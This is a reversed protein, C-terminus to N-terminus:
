QVEKIIDWGEAYTPTEYRDVFRKARDLQYDRRTVILNFDPKFWHVELKANPYISRLEKVCRSRESATMFIWDVVFCDKGTLFGEGHDVDVVPLGLSRAYTTKGMGPIGSLCIIRNVSL